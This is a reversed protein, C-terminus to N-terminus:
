HQQICTTMDPSLNYGNPCAEGNFPESSIGDGAKDLKDKGSTGLFTVATICVVAILAVLLAYEVLSAGREGKNRLVLGRHPQM